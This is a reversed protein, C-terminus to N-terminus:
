KASTTGTASAPLNCWVTTVATEASEGESTMGIDGGVSQVIAKAISLGLGTGQIPTTTRFSEARVFRDFLHQLREPDILQGPNSVRVHVVDGNEVSVSVHSGRPSHDRANTLLIVLLQAFRDTSITAFAHESGRLQYSREADIIRFDNIVSGVVPVVDVVDSVVYDESDVTALTLLDNVLRTMRASEERIRRMADTVARSSRLQGKEFLASYGSITTLPTRLEHASDSVFQRLKEEVHENQNLLDNVAQGLQHAETKEPFSPVRQSKDGANIKRAVDAVRRIPALGLKMVWLYALALAALVILWGVAASVSLQISAAIVPGISNGIVLTNKGQPILVVRMLDLGGSGSARNVTAYTVSRTSESVRALDPIEGADTEFSYSMLSDQGRIMGVYAGPIVPVKTIDEASTVISDKLRSPNQTPSQNSAREPLTGGADVFKVIKSAQKEFSMLNQDLRSISFSYQSFVIAVDVFFVIAAILTLILVLRSKLTM